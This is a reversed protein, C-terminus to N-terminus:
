SQIMTTEIKFIYFLQQETNNKYSITSFLVFFRVNEFTLLMLISNTEVNIQFRRFKKQFM